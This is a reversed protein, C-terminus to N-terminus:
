RSATRLLKCLERLDSEFGMPNSLVMKCRKAYTAIQSASMSSIVGPNIAVGPNGPGGPAGPGGPTLISSTNINLGVDAVTNGGLGINALGSTGTPNAGLNATLGNSGGVTVNGSANGLGSTGNAGTSIDANIGGSGGVTAGVGGTDASVGLGNSRNGLDLALSPGCLAILLVGGALTKALTKSTFTM